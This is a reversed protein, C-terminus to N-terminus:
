PWGDAEVQWIAQRVGRYNRSAAPRLDGSIWRHNEGSKLWNSMPTLRIGPGPAQGSPWSAATSESNSRTFPLLRPGQHVGIRVEEDWFDFYYRESAPRGERVHVALGGSDRTFLLSVVGVPVGSLCRVAGGRVKETAARADIHGYRGGHWPGQRGQV